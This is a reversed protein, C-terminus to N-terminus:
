LEHVSWKASNIVEDNSMSYDEIMDEIATRLSIAMEEDKVEYRVAVVWPM